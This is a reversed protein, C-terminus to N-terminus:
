CSGFRIAIVQGSGFRRLDSASIHLVSAPPGMQVVGVIDRAWTQRSRLSSWWPAWPADPCILTASARCARIHSVVEGVIHPPPFVWNNETGWPLSLADVWEADPHFYQACFRGSHPPCLPQCNDASAFRDITHPGWLGDLYAFCEELLSYHHHRMESVHSLYDARVNLDRPVWVFTLSFGHEVQLDLLHLALRQLEPHPSGGSVFEGWQKGGAAFPPVVGGMIFVCGLNDMVVKHRGGRLLPALATMAADVGFLERLTSSASRLHSPLAAMFEIGARARRMVARRSLGAPALAWLAAVLSSAMASAAEVFTVAGVGTDSADSETTSDFPAGLPSDRIPSVSIRGLNALWWAMEALCDATLTVASNWSARRARRTASSARSLIVEDMARTRIRTASGTSVWTSAILGKLRAVTRVGVTPPGSLVTTIGHLIRDVTAPPVAYTHTALDVLTGLAVFAQAADSTGVCKTPHILWGFERLIHIMRQASEVAGRASESAFILDDLYGMLDSGKFRIFKVCHGMVTTFLWPSSSLGFPLVNFRYFVGNWEFGLYAVAEPAMDVHHYASSIDLTGGFNSREFLARGERQLTEMRFPRKRLHRNVHRGDWILRRKGASNFAVGLPLICILASRQCVEMTGAAVGAAIAEAVFAAEALASPHNPLFAPPAPGKAPDWDMRFGGTIVSLTLACVLGMTHMTAAWYARRDRLRHRPSPAHEGETHEGRGDEEPDSDSEEKEDGSAAAASRGPDPRGAGPERRAAM